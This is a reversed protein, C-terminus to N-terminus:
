PEWWPPWVTPAWRAPPATPTKSSPTDPNFWLVPLGLSDISERGEPAIDTVNAVIVHSFSHKTAFDKLGTLAKNDTIVTETPDGDEFATLKARTNGIDITLNM